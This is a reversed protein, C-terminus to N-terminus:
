QIGGTILQDVTPPKATTSPKPKGAIVPLWTNPTSSGPAQGKLASGLVGVLGGPPNKIGSYILLGSGILLLLALPLNTNV